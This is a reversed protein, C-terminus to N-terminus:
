RKTKKQKMCEDRYKNYGPECEWGHGDPTLRGHKPIDVKVCKNRQQVYGHDCEWNWVHPVPHANKPMDMTSAHALGLIFLALM